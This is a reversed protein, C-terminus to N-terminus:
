PTRRDGSEASRLAWTWPLALACLAAMAWFGHAGMRAYLAGSVPTLVAIAGGIGVWGYLAQATGELGPPVTRALVRMCALHLLAFTLGHLPQVLVLALVDASQAMVAWRLVGALAAVALAGAPTLRTVLPPGLFFFVLVEAAVAASWLVSVAAPSVGAARWRLVAFADHMAHSGLILAAVLVLRRFQPLRLLLRVGGAPGRVAEASRDHRLEPVRVAAAAAAGLLLAQGWVIADLGWAGVAQGSLLTGAIFGASGTGRVWGYEFARRGRGPPPASAGLALADALVTLPALAAAHALSLALLPWLGHAPLYGLTVAAALATCAVLVARLGQLVDGTRGALTATLLRVATGAGLVLGLAEASLGRASVFAPLFPSAVGFAAYMAGYLLLFRPLATSRRGHKEGRRILVV